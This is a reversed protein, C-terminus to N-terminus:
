MRFDDLSHLAKSPMVPFYVKQLTQEFPENWDEEQYFDLTFLEQRDLVMVDPNGELITDLNEIPEEM